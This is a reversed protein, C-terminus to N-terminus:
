SKTVSERLQGRNEKSLKEEFRWAIKGVRTRWKDMQSDERVSVM